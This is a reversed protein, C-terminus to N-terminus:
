SEDIIGGILTIFRQTDLELKYVPQFEVDVHLQFAENGFTADIANRALESFPRSNVIRERDETLVSKINVVRMRHKGYFRSTAEIMEITPTTCLMLNIGQELHEIYVSSNIGYKNGYVIAEDWEPVNQAVKTYEDTSVFTYEVEDEGERRPRTTYTNMYRLRDPFADLAYRAMTSKGSGSKGCVLLLKGEMQNDTSNIV